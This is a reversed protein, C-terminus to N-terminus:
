LPRSLQGQARVYSSTKLGTNGARQLYQIEVNNSLLVQRLMERSKAIEEDRHRIVKRFDVRPAAFIGLHGSNRIDYVAKASAIMAKTPICGWNSCVGGLFEREIVCVKGGLQAIRAAAAVGSPGGGIIICDYMMM